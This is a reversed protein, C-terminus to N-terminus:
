PVRPSHWGAPGNTFLGNSRWPFVYHAQMTSPTILTGAIKVNVGIRRDSTIRWLAETDDIWLTDGSWTRIQIGDLDISVITGSTRGQKPSSWIKQQQAMMANRYPAVYHMMARQGLFVANTAHFIVGLFLTVLLLIGLLRLSRFRYGHRTSRFLVFSLGLFLLMFLTLLLPLHSLSVIRFGTGPIIEDGKPLLSFIVLSSAFGGILLTLLLTIVIAFRKILFRIRPVPKMQSQKLEQLVKSALDM